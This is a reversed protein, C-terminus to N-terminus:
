YSLLRGTYLYIIGHLYGKFYNIISLLSSTRFIIYFPLRIFTQGILATAINFSKRHDRLLIFFNRAYFFARKPTLMNTGKIGANSSVKHLVLPYPAYVMRFGANKARFCFEIDEVELFYREDFFGIKKFVDSKILLAAAGFDAEIIDPFKVESLVKGMNPYVSYLFTHNLYGSACWIIKPDTYYTIIPSILGINKDNFYPLIINLLEPKVVTDNNLLFIYSCKDYLAHKSGINVGAAFGLNEALNIININKFLITEEMTFRNNPDNNILYINIRLRHKYLKKVSDLCELTDRKNGFHVIVIGIKKYKVM